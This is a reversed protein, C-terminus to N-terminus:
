KVGQAQGNLQSTAMAVHDNIVTQERAWQYLHHYRTDVTGGKAQREFGNVNDLMDYVVIAPNYHEIIRELYNVNKGHIDFVLIRDRGNVKQEYAQGVTEKGLELIKQMPLNLAARYCTGLIKVRTSENNFWVIPRDNQIQPAMYTLQDALFSTKGTDPRASVIGFTGHKLKGISNQLCKLRFHYGPADKEYEFVDDITLSDYDLDNAKTLGAKFTKILTNTESYIDDGTQYDAIKNALETSFELETLKYIIGDESTKDPDDQTAKLIGDYFDIQDKPMDTHRFSKLWTMFTEPVIKTHDTFHNFYLGFENVLFKTEPELTTVKIVKILKQYKDRHKLISLLTKDLM